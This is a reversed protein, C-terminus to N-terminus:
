PRLKGRRFAPPYRRQPTYLSGMGRLIEAPLRVAFVGLVDEDPVAIKFREGFLLHQIGEPEPQAIGRKRLVHARKRRVPVRKFCFHAYFVDAPARPFLDHLQVTRRRLAREALGRAREDGKGFRPLKRRPLLFHQQEAETHAVKRTKVIRAGDRPVGPHQFRAFVTKVRPVAHARIAKRPRIRKRRRAHERLRAAGARRCRGEEAQARAFLVSRDNGNPLVHRGPPYSSFARM